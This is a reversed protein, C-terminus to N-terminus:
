KDLIAPSPCPRDFVIDSVQERTSALPLGIRIKVHAHEPRRIQLAQFDHKGKLYSITVDPSSLRLYPGDPEDHNSVHIELNLAIFIERWEAHTLENLRGSFRDRIQQLSTIAEGERNLQAV